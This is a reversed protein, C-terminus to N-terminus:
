GSNVYIGIEGIFNFKKKHTYLSAPSGAGVEGSDQWAQRLRPHVSCSTWLSWRPTDGYWRCSPVRLVECFLVCVDKRKKQFDCKRHNSWLLLGLKTDTSCQQYLAPPFTGNTNATNQEEVSPGFVKHRETGVPPEATHAPSSCCEAATQTRVFRVPTSAPACCWQWAACPGAAAGARWFPCGGLAATSYLTLM